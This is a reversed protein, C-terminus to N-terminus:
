ASPIQFSCKRRLADMWRTMQRLFGFRQMPEWAEMETVLYSKCLDNPKPELGAVLRSSFLPTTSISGMGFDSFARKELRPM